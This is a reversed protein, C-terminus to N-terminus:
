AAQPQSAVGHQNAWTFANMAVAALLVDLEQGALTLSTARGFRPLLSEFWNNFAESYNRLRTAPAFREARARPVTRLLRGVKDYPIDSPRQHDPSYRAPDPQWHRTWEFDGHPCPITYSRVLCYRDDHRERRAGRCDIRATKVMAGLREDVDVVFLAGDDIALDHDCATGDGATHSITVFEYLSNVLEFKAEDKASPYLSTGVPLPARSHWLRSLADYRLTREVLGHLSPGTLELGIRDSQTSPRKAEATAHQRLFDATRVETAALVDLGASDKPRERRRRDGAAEPADAPQGDPDEGRRPRKRGKQVLDMGLAGMLHDIVWGTLAGDYVVTHALGPACADIRHLVDLAAWQEGGLTAQVGLTVLGAPTETHITVFNIGHRGAHDTNQARVDHQVRPPALHARSGIYETQETVPNWVAVVDTMPKLIVGDGFLTHRLDISTLDPQTGPRLNGQAQAQRVAMATFTEKLEALLGDRDEITKRIKQVQDRAPPHPPLPPADEYTEWIEQVRAWVDEDRLVKIAEPLSGVARALAATALLVAAPFRPKRGRADMRTARYEEYCQALTLIGPYDFIALAKQKASRKTSGTQLLRAMDDATRTLARRTRAHREAQPSRNSAPTSTM